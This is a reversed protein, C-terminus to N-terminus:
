APVSRAAGRAASFRELEELLSLMRPAAERRGGFRLDNYAVTFQEVLLTTESPPLVRVFEAPTLWPPKELGRRKLNALMRAYLLTADSSHAQGRQVKRVRERTRWWARLRPGFFILGAAAALAILAATGYAKWWAVARHKWDALLARLADMWQTGFTRSSNEFRSALVLQRTLDYSLVWEQWFTDAADLYLGLRNWLSFRPPNPDPPTPDFTTWGRAPLYAEVWSHADSARIVYWGSIPNYVGSQFGNAVRSPIGIARLMVAMASSFYECHGKRREFLFHAVPDPAEESPLETTYAYNRRLYSQIALTSAEASTFGRTIEKALKTIRPDLPPLQLCCELVGSPVPRPPLRRASREEELISNAAYRLGEANGFGLRYSNNPSRIILPVNIWVFEPTGAFFLADAAIANLQVEYSLREGPRRQADDALRLVSDKVQLIEGPVPPNYWRKGDFRNLAVGRWKLHMPGADEAIRVHMVATRHQRIEGIQGLVMENSFGPIHYREPVLHRFAAQATRPLLFFLGGTLALIGFSVFLTLTALRWHFRNLGGRAVEPAKRLSRRIEASALAAVGFLLFFALFVFFTPSASLVAAALLELFAIIALFVHDRNSVATLIKMVALFFVLHVTAPLFEGSVFAYDLPYFGIYALTLAAVWRPPIRLRVAGLIVAARLLMAAGTLIATPPDLYRSGLVAFYGSALLGLVSLEFFREVSVVASAATRHM